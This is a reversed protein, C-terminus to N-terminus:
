VPTSLVYTERAVLLGNDAITFIDAFEFGSAARPQDPVFRGIAAARDGAGFVQTLVHRGRGCRQAETREIEGRGHVPQAGPRRLVVDPDFLSVFGDIDGTDLYHYSLRVHDVAVATVAASPTRVNSSGHRLM